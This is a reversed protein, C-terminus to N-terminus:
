VDDTLDIASDNVDKTEVGILDVDNERSDETAFDDEIVSKEDAKKDDHNIDEIVEDQNNEISAHNDINDMEMNESLLENDVFDMIEEDDNSDNEDVVDEEDSTTNEVEEIEKEDLILDDTPIYINANKIRSDEEKKKKMKSEEEKQKRIRFEEQKRKEQAEKIRQMKDKYDNSNQKFQEYWDRYNIAINSIRSGRIISNNILNQKLSLADDAELNMDDISYCFDQYKMLSKTFDSALCINANILFQPKKGKRIGLNVLRDKVFNSYRGAQMDSLERITSVGQIIINTKSSKKNKLAEDMFEQLKGILCKTQQVYANRKEDIGVPVISNDKIAVWQSRPKINCYEDYIYIDSPLDVYVMYVHGEADKNYDEMVKDFIKASGEISVRRNESTVKMGKLHSMNAFTKAISKLNKNKLSLIWESLFAYINKELSSKEDYISVTKYSKVVCRDTIVTDNKLCLNFGPMSYTSINYGGESKLEDYLVNEDLAYYDLGGYIFNWNNVIEAYGRNQSSTSAYNVQNYIDIVNSVADDKQVFANPYVEFNNVAYFGVMLNRLERFGDDRVNSLFHYSPLEPIMFYITNDDVRGRLSSDFSQVTTYEDKKERIYENNSIGLMCSCLLIANIFVMVSTFRFAFFIIWALLLGVFWSSPIVAIFSIWSAERELWNGIFNNVDFMAFQNFFAVTILMTFIGCIANQADRSFSLLLILLFAVIVVGGLVYLVAQNYVGEEKMKGNISYVFMVLDIACLLVIYMIRLLKDYYHNASGSWVSSKSSKSKKNLKLPQSITGDM